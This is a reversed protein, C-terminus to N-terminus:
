SFVTYLSLIFRFSYLINLFKVKQVFSAFNKKYLVGNGQRFVDLFLM